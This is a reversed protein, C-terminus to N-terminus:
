RKFMQRTMGGIFTPLAETPLKDLLAMQGDFDRRLYENALANGVENVIRKKRRINANSARLAAASQFGMARSAAAEFAAVDTGGSVEIIGIKGVWHGKSHKYVRGVKKRAHYITRWPYGEDKMRYAAM